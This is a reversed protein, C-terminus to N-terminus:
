THLVWEGKEDIVSQAARRLEKLSMIVCEGNLEYIFVGKDYHLFKYDSHDQLVCIADLKKLVPLGTQYM